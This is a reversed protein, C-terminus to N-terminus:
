SAEASLNDLNIKPLRDLFQLANKRDYHIYRNTTRVDRHGLLERIIDISVGAILLWSAHVHRLDHFRLKSGDVQLGLRRM